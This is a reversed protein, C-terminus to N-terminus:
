SAPRGAAKFLVANHLAGISRRCTSEPHMVAFVSSSQGQKTVIVMRTNVKDMRKIFKHPWGWLYKAYEIPMHLEINRMSKPIYGTWGILEYDIVARKIIIASLAKM